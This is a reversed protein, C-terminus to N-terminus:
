PSNSGLQEPRHELSKPGEQVCRQIAATTQRHSTKGACTRWLPRQPDMRRGHARCSRALVYTETEAAHVHQHMWSKGPCHQKPGQGALHHESAAMCSLAWSAPEISRSRQTCPWSATTGHKRQWDPWPPLHRASAGTSSQMLHSPTQSLQAWFFLTMSSMWNMTMSASPQPLTLTRDWSRHKRWALPLGSTKAPM